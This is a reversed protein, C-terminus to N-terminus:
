QRHERSVGQSFSSLLFTTGHASLSAKHVGSAGEPTVAPGVTCSPILARSCGTLCRQREACGWGM